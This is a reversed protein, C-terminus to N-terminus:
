NGPPYHRFGESKPEKSAHCCKAGTLVKPLRGCKDFGVPAGTYKSALKGHSRGHLFPSM